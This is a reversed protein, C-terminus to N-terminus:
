KVLCPASCKEYSAQRIDLLKLSLRQEVTPPCQGKKLNRTGKYIDPNTTLADQNLAGQKMKWRLFRIRQNCNVEYIISKLSCAIKRCPQLGTKLHNIENFSNTEVDTMLKGNGAVTPSPAFLHHFTNQSPKIPTELRTM